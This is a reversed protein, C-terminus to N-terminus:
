SDFIIRRITLEHWYRYGLIEKDELNRRKTLFELWSKSTLVHPVRFPFKCSALIESKEGTTKLSKQVEFEAINSHLIVLEKTYNSGQSISKELLDTGSYATTTRSEADPPCPVYPPACIVLDIDAKKERIPSYGNGCLIGVKRNMKNVISNKLTLHCAEFDIDILTIGRINRNKKGLYLGLFGTGCGLDLIKRIGEDSVYGKESLTKAFWLADISPPWVIPNWIMKLNDYVILNNERGFCERIVPGNRLSDVAVPDWLLRPTQIYEEVTGSSTKVIFKLWEIEKDVVIKLTMNSKRGQGAYIGSNM